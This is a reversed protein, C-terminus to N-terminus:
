RRARLDIVLPDHDSSRVPSNADFLAPDRDGDLNYDLDRSRGANIHWAAVRTIREALKPTAFAHDLAGRRGRYEYTWADDGIFETLLNVYGSTELETVPDEGLYANLDGVILVDGDTDLPDTAAWASLAAAARTRTLNCNGQGDGLDPDGLADCNSGKSKFHNAIVTVGAAGREDLAKFAQAVSPRNKDDNFRPDVRADLIRPEGQVSVRASNYIFGVKIPGRGVVGTDISEWSGETAKTVAAALTALTEGTDNEVEMLAVIDAGSLRITTVLKALQREFEAASDAGRCADADPGCRNDGADVTSFLNLANASMVRIHGTAVQPPSPPIPDSSPAACAGLLLLATTGLLRKVGARVAYRRAPPISFSQRM